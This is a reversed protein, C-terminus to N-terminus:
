AHQEEKMPWLNSQETFEVEGPDVKSVLAQIGCHPCPDSLLEFGGHKKKITWTMGAPFKYWGNGFPVLNQVKRGILAREPTRRYTRNDM